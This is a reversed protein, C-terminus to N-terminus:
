RGSPYSGLIKLFHCKKKLDKLTKEVRPAQCHGEMDLFFYYKWAKKKSPRSEIKTLNIGAKKFPTLMDHLVGPRDKVSFMISTKDKGSLKSIHDGIILFRTVNTASDEIARAIVKLKYKKSVLESAICAAKSEKAVIQAAKSTSAVSHLKAGPLNKEIWSRCQGFVEAKSYIKKISKVNSSKSLVSHRIPLFTESCIKLSSKAFMDLTYNVAGETSNEIPVVGYDANGKEVERFVNAISDCSIYEMSSGFKRIAAQHTFTLEPGLYAVVLSKELSLCASMIESYVSKLSEEKLPGSNRKAIKSYVLSERDPSYLPQGKQKKSEGIAHSIKGRENILKVIRDDIRDIGKRMDSLKKPKM